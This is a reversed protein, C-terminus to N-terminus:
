PREGFIGAANQFIKGGVQLPTIKGTYLFSNFYPNYHINCSDPYGMLSLASIGSSFSSRQLLGIFPLVGSDSGDSLFNVGFSLSGM